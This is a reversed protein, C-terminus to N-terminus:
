KRWRVKVPLPVQSRNPPTSVVASAARAAAVNRRLSGTGSPRFAAPAPLERLVECSPRDAPHCGRQGDGGRGQDHTDLANPGVPLKGARASAPLGDTAGAPRIPHCATVIRLM